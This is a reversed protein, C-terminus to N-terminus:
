GSGVRGALNSFRRVRGSGGLGVRDTEDRSIEFVDYGSGVRGALNSLRRVRDTPRAVVRSFARPFPHGGESSYGGKKTYVRNLTM